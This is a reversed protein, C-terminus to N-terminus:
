YYSYVCWGAACLHSSRYVTLWFTIRYFSILINPIIALILNRNVQIHQIKASIAGRQIKAFLVNFQGLNKTCITNKLTNV